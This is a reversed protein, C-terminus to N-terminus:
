WSPTTSMNSMTPPFPDPVVCPAAAPLLCPSFPDFPSESCCGECGVAVAPCGVDPGEEEWVVRPPAELGVVAVVVVAVCCGELWGTKRQHRVLDCGEGRRGDRGGLARCGWVIGVRLPRMVWGFVEGM